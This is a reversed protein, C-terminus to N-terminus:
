GALAYIAYSVGEMALSEGTLSVGAGSLLEANKLEPLTVSQPQGSPNVAIICTGTADKREYVFPYSNPEAHLPRFAADNGLASHDKRLALLHKVHALISDSQTEQEAVTPAGSDTNVPLYLQEAPATSFGLNRAGAEWQMPTRSGTRAYGGEKTVLGATYDLGIEDGAYIYPVGPLTFLFTLAVKLEDISRGHALRMIDHNGTPLSIYGASQTPELHKLYHDLFPRINGQGAKDFYSPPM